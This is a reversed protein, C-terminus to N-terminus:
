KPRALDNNKSDEIKQMEFNWEEDLSLVCGVTREIAAEQWRVNRGHCDVLEVMDDGGSFCRRSFPLRTENESTVMTSNGYETPEVGQLTPTGM